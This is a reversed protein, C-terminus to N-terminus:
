NYCLLITIGRTSRKFCTKHYIILKFLESLDIMSDITNIIRCDIAINRLFFFVLFCVFKTM